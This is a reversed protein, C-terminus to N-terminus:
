VTEIGGCGVVVALQLLSGHAAARDIVSVTQCRGAPWALRVRAIERVPWLRGGFGVRDPHQMVCRGCGEVVALGIRTSRRQQQHQTPPLDHLFSSRFTSSRKQDFYAEGSQDSSLDSGMGHIYINIKNYLFIHM